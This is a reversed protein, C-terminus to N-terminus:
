SAGAVFTKGVKRRVQEGEYRIGKGKYPEPPRVSRVLAAFQGVQQKDCGAIAIHTADPVDVKLEKPVPVVRPTSFGVALSLSSGQKTVRYGVGVLELRKQYGQSVGKIMNAILARTTGHLARDLKGDSARAVTVRRAAADWAIKMSDRFTARLSGLPGKVSVVAGQVSVEVKPPVEM